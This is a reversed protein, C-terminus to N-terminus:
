SDVRQMFDDRDVVVRVHTGRGIAIPPDSGQVAEVEFSIRDGAVEVVTASATVTTGVISPRMHRIDVATGVSTQESGLHGRLAECAAAELLAILRPTALVPLDGSGAAIATDASDVRLTVRGTAGIVAARQETSFPM